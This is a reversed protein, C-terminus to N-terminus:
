LADVRWLSDVFIRVKGTPTRLYEVKGVRMWNYITRVSVGAMEAAKVTNVKRRDHGDIYLAADSATPAMLM